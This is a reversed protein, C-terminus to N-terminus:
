VTTSAGSAKTSRVIGQGSEGVVTHVTVYDSGPAVARAMATIQNAMATHPTEGYINGPYPAPYGTAVTRIPEVLPVLSLGGVAANWPNAGTAPVVANGLSLKLNHYPQNTALVPPAGM